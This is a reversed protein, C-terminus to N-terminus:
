YADILQLWYNRCIIVLVFGEVVLDLGVRGEEATRFGTDADVVRTGKRRLLFMSLELYVPGEFEEELAGLKREVRIARGLWEIPATCLGVDVNGTTLNRQTSSRVM